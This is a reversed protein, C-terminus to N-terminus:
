WVMKNILPQLSRGNSRYLIGKKRIIVGKPPIKQKVSKKRSRKKKKPSHKKVKKTKKKQIELYEKCKSFPIGDPCKKELKKFNTMKNIM